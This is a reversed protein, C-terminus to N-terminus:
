PAERALVVDLFLQGIFHWNEVFLNRWFRTQQLPAEADRRSRPAVGFSRGGGYRLPTANRTAGARM